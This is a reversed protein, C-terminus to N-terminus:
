YEYKDLRFSLEYIENKRIIETVKETSEENIEDNYYASVVMENVIELTQCYSTAIVMHYDKNLIIFSFDGDININPSEDESLIFDMDIDINDIPKLSQMVYKEANDLIIKKSESSRGDYDSFGFERIDWVQIQTSNKYKGRLHTAVRSAINKSQGVYLCTDGNFIAYIGIHKINKPEDTDMNFANNLKFYLWEQNKDDHNHIEIYM